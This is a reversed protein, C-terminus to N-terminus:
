SVGVNSTMHKFNIRCLSTVSVYQLSEFLKRTYHAFKQISRTIICGTLPWHKKM